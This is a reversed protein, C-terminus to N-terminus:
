ARVERRVRNLSRAIRVASAFGDEHFGHRLWAGAFWTNRQGQLAAIREQAHLAARDFVPHEFIAEDYILQQPIERAPNLTVFLPDSEPIGQLRNMWYTVGVATDAGQRESQYVWSSWCRRRAPMQSDDRHLVARNCQYRIASLASRETADADELLRLAQDSHCALIVEDFHEPEAGPTAVRVGDETRRVATVPCGTRMEVGTLRLRAELRRVYEISGGQVTWWQHQGGASMLAHNRFFRVLTRAPFAGVESAPTSWIAGCIPLLYHRRFGDGLGLAAILDDITMDDSAATDEARTNFRAIDRLMRLFRPNVVNRRQGFVTNITRLAYEVRGGDITAGFSMDSKRVPVDLDAFLRTLHPYNAYNFVIFGTDVPRDGRLGAMVTRAHGGLRNAAEFVTIRNGPSLLHAAALGSVGAGIVAIRRAAPVPADFSM